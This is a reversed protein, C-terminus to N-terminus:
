GQKLRRVLRVLIRFAAGIGLILGTLMGWPEVSFVSDIWVGLGLGIVICGAFEIGVSAMRATTRWPSEPQTGPDNHNHDSVIPNRPDM